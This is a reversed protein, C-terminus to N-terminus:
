CSKQMGHQNYSGVQIIIRDRPWILQCAREIVVECHAEENYMPLQVLVVPFYDYLSVLSAPLKLSKDPALVASSAPPDGGVPIDVADHASSTWLMQQQQQKEQSDQLSDQAACQQQQQQEDDDAGRYRLGRSSMHPSSPLSQEHLLQMSYVTELQSQPRQQEEMLRQLTAKPTGLQGAQPTSPHSSGAASASCDSVVSTSYAGSSGALYSSSISSVSVRAATPIQWMGRTPSIKSPDRTSAAEKGDCLRGDDDAADLATASSPQTTASVKYGQDDCEPPSVLSDKYWWWYWPHGPEPDWLEKVKAALAVLSYGIVDLQYLLFMGTFGLYWIM